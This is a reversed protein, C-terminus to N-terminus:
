KFNDEFNTLTSIFRNYKGVGTQLNNDINMKAVLDFVGEHDEKYEFEIEYDTIGNYSNRDLAIEVGKIQKIRRETILFGLLFIDGFSYEKWIQKIETESIEYPIVDITKEYEDSIRVNNEVGNKVKIQLLMLNNICRIRITINGNEMLKENSFYFNVQVFEKDWKELILKEYKNKDIIGKWEKEKM